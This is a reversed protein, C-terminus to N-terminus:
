CCEVCFRWFLVNNAVNRKFVTMFHGGCLMWAELLSFELIMLIGGVNRMIMDSQDEYGGQLLTGM